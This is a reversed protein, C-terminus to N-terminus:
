GGGRGFQAQAPWGSGSRGARCLCPARPRAAPWPAAPRARFIRRGERRSAGGRGGLCVGCVGLYHITVKTCRAHHADATRAGASAQAVIPPSSGSTRLRGSAVAEVASCPVGTLLAESARRQERSTRQELAQTFITCEHVRKYGLGAKGGPLLPARRLEEGAIAVRAALSCVHVAEADDQPLQKRAEPWVASKRALQAGNHFANPGRDHWDPGHVAHPRLDRLVLARRWPLVQHFRAPCAFRGFAWRKLGNAVLKHTNAFLHARCSLAETHLPMTTNGKTNTATANGDGTLQKHQAPSSTSRGRTRSSSTVKVKGSSHQKNTLYFRPLPPAM